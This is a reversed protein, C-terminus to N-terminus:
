VQFFLYIIKFIIIDFLKIILNNSLIFSFTVWPFGYIINSIVLEILLFIFPTFIILYFIKRLYKFISFVLGFILSLFIPLMTALITFNKTEQNILFPNHIWSLFVILFGLGYFFGLYFYNMFNKKISIHILSYILVPFIILGLPMMFFPPFLLASLVGLIFFKLLIM